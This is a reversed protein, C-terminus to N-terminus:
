FIRVAGGLTVMIEKTKGRTNVLHISGSKNSIGRSNLVFNNDTFTVGDSDADTVGDADKDPNFRLGKTTVSEWINAGVENVPLRFLVEEGTELLPHALNGSDYNEDIWVIPGYKRTGSLDPTFFRVAVPRSRRIAELRARQIQINLDQAVSKLRVNPIYFAMSLISVSSIITVLVMVVIVELLTFGAERRALFISV